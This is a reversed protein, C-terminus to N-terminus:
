GRKNLENWVIKEWESEPLIKGSYMSRIAQKQLNAMKLDKGTGDSLFKDISMPVDRKKDLKKKKEPAEKSEVLDADIILDVEKEKEM